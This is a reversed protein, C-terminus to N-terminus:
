VNHCTISSLEFGRPRSTFVTFFCQLHPFALCMPEFLKLTEPCSFSYLPNGCENLGQINTESLKLINRLLFDSPSLCIDFINTITCWQSYMQWILVGFHLNSDNVTVVKAAIIDGNKITARYLMLLYQRITHLFVISKYWNLLSKEIQLGHSVRVFYTKQRMVGMVSGRWRRFPVNRRLTGKCLSISLSQPILIGIFCFRVSAGTRRSLPGEEQCAAPIWLSVRM